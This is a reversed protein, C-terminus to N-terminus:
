DANLAELLAALTEVTSCDARGDVLAPRFHRQFASVVIQTHEDYAGSSDIGYGYTALNRQLSMVGDGADGQGLSDGCRIDAPEVWHGVGALALRGWDFKEGPDIKRRPAVDSHGLVRCAPVDNRAIIDLCLTEVAAMQADPFGPYAGDHGPNHIEIGISRSNIDASGQWHSVGAHWARLTEPVMQTVAGDEDVVYHCSVGSQPSALCRIADECSPMGTYHLILMDPRTGDCREGFNPSPVIHSVFASDAVFSPPLLKSTM